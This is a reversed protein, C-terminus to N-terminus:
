GLPNPAVGEGDYGGVNKPQTSDGLSYQFPASRQSLCKELMRWMEDKM